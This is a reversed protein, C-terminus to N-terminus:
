FRYSLAASVVVFSYSVEFGIHKVDITVFPQILPLVPTKRALRMFRGDYGTVFGLRYGLAAGIPHGGNTFLQRQLGGTFARRGFSNMFTAGFFGRWTLGVAWNNDLALVHQRLHMTWMGFYLRRDHRPPSTSSEQQIAPVPAPDAAAASQAVVTAPMLVAACALAAPLGILRM